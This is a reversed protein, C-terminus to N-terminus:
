SGGFEAEERMSLLITKTMEDAFRKALPGEEEISRLVDAARVPEGAEDHFLVANDRLGSSVLSRLADWLPSPEYFHRIAKARDTLVARTGHEEDYTVDYYRPAIAFAHHHTALFLQDVDHEDVARVLLAALRLMLKKHLHAEPEEIQLIPSGTTLVDMLMVLLQQEGTGLSTIPLGEQNDRVLQTEYERFENNRTAILELSAPAMAQGRMAEALLAALRKPVDRERKDSSTALLYLRRQIQESASLLDLAVDFESGEMKERVIRRYADSPRLLESRLLKSRLRDLLLSAGALQKQQADLNLQHQKELHELSAVQATAQARNASTTNPNQAQERQSRLSARVQALEATVRDIGSRIGASMMAVNDTLSVGNDLEARQAWWCIGDGVDQAIVDLVLTSGAPLEGVSRQARSGLDVEMRIQMEHPSSRNFDQRRLGLVADASAYDLRAASERTSAISAAGGIWRLPLTMARLINSKGAGNEGHFVAISPLDDLTLERISRYGRVYLSRVRTPRYNTPPEQMALAHRPSAWTGAM